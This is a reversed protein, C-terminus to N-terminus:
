MALTRATSLSPGPTEEARFRVAVHLGRTLSDCLFKSRWSLQDLDMGAHINRHNVIIAKTQIAVSDLTGVAYGGPRLQTEGDLYVEPLYDIQTRGSYLRELRQRMLKTMPKSRSQLRVAAVSRFASSDAFAFTRAPRARHVMVPTGHPVLPFLREIDERGVRLCGHSSPRTGLHRYYGSGELGHAGINYNFGIWHFMKANDYQRSIALPSKTQVSYIGMPTEMGDHIRPNGSSIPIAILTDVGRQHLHMHQGDLDVMLFADGLVWITDQVPMYDSHFVFAAPAAVIASGHDTTSALVSKTGGEGLFVIGAIGINLTLILVIALKM